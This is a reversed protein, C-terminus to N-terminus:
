RRGTRHDRLEPFRPAPCPRSMSSFTESRSRRGCPHTWSRCRLCVSRPSRPSPWSRPARGCWWGRHWGTTAEACGHLWRFGPSRLPANALVMLSLAPTVTLAVVMSAVVALLYSLVIPPLFAGSEGWLFFLPAAAAAVILVAYLVARRTEATADVITVSGTRSASQRQSEVVRRAINLPDVVADHIVATLGLVLGAVVMLNLTTGRLWLVAAAAAVSVAMATVSILLRRWDWFIAGILLLMFLVGALVAWGLHEFSSEVFTAPRYLSSDIRMDGLPRMAELAADVGETVEVTNAGPFKEIVLFM